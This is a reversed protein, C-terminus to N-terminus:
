ISGPSRSNYATGTLYSSYPFASRSDFLDFLELKTWTWSKRCRLYPLRSQHTCRRLNKSATRLMRMLVQIIPTYKTTLSTSTVRCASTFRLSSVRSSASNQKWHTAVNQNKANARAVITKSTLLFVLLALQPKENIM